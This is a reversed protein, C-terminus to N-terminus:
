LVYGQFFLSSRIRHTELKSRVLFHPGTEFASNKVGSRGRCFFFSTVVWWWPFFLHQGGSGVRVLERRDSIDQWALSSRAAALSAKSSRPKRKNSPQKRARLGMSDAHYVHWTKNDKAATGQRSTTQHAQRRDQVGQGSPVGREDPIATFALQYLVVARPGDPGNPLLVSGLHTPAVTAAAAVAVASATATDGAATAATATVAIDTAAATAATAIAIAGATATAIAGTVATASAEVRRPTQATPPRLTTTPSAGHQELM